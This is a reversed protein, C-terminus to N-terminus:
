FMYSSRALGQHTNHVNGITFNSAMNMDPHLSIMIQYTTNELPLTYSATTLYNWSGNARPHTLSQICYGNGESVWDIDLM